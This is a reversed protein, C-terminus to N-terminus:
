KTLHLETEVRTIRGSRALESQTIREETWYMGASDRKVKASVLFFSIQQMEDCLRTVAVM